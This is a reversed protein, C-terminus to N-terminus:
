NIFPKLIEYIRKSMNQKPSAGYTQVSMQVKEIDNLYIGIWLLLQKNDLNVIDDTDNLSYVVADFLYKLSEQNKKTIPKHIYCSEKVTAASM